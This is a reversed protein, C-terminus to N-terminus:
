DEDAFLLQMSGFQHINTQGFSKTLKLRFFESYKVIAQIHFRRFFPHCLVISEPRDMIAVVSIKTVCFLIKKNLSAVLTSQNPSRVVHWLDIEVDAGRLGAGGEEASAQILHQCILQRSRLSLVKYNERRRIRDYSGLSLM